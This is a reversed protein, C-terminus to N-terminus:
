SSLSVVVVETLDEPTQLRNGESDRVHGMGPYIPIKVGGGGQPLTWNFSWEASQSFLTYGLRAGREVLTELNQLRDDEYPHSAVQELVENLAKCFPQVQHQRSDEATVGGDGFTSEM